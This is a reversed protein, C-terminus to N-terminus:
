QQIGQHILQITHYTFYSGLSDSFASSDITVTSGDDTTAGLETYDDGLEISQPNNGTLTIVPPTTDIVIQFTRQIESLGAWDTVLGWIDTKFYRM